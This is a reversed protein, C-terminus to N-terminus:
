SLRVCPLRISQCLFIVVSLSPIPFELTGASEESRTKSTDVFGAFFSGPCRGFPWVGNTGIDSIGAASAFLVYNGDRGPLRVSVRERNGGSADVWRQFRDRVPRWPEQNEDDEVRLAEILVDTNWLAGSGLLVDESEGESDFEWVRM